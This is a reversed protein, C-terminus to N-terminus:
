EVTNRNFAPHEDHVVLKALDRERAVIGKKGDTLTQERQERGPDAAHECRQNVVGTVFL